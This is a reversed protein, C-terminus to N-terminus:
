VEDLLRSPSSTYPPGLDRLSALVVYEHVSLRFPKLTDATAEAMLFAIRAIRGLVQWGTTDVDPRQSLLRQKTIELRDGLPM